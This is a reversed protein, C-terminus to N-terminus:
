ERDAGVMWETAEVRGSLVVDQPGGRSWRDDVELGKQKARGVHCAVEKGGVQRRVRARRLVSWAM